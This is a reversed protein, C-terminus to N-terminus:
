NMKQSSTTQSHPRWSHVFQLVSGTIPASHSIAKVRAHNTRFKACWHFDLQAAFRRPSRRPLSRGWGVGGDRALVGRAAGFVLLRFFNSFNMSHSARQQARGWPSRSSTHRCGPAANGCSEAPIGPNAAGPQRRYWSEPGGGRVTGNM